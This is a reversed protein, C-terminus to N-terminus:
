PNTMLSDSERILYMDLLCPNLADKDVAARSFLLWPRVLLSRWARFILWICNVLIAHWSFFFFSDFDRVPRKTVAAGQQSSLDGLM